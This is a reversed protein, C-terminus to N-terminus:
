KVGRLFSQKPVTCPLKQELSTMIEPLSSADFYMDREMGIGYAGKVEQLETLSVYGYEPTGFGLDCIGFAVNNDDLESLYWSQSGTPNFVKLVAKNDTKYQNASNKRLKKEITKTLLKM